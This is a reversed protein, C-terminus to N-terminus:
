FIYKPILFYIRVDDSVQIFKPNRNVPSVLIDNENLNNSTKKITYISSEPSNLDFKTLNSNLVIGAASYGPSTRTRPENDNVVILDDDLPNENLIQSNLQNVNEQNYELNERGEDVLCIKNM